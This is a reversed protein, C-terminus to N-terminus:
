LINDLIISDLVSVVLSYKDSDANKTLKFGGFLCCVLTFDITLDRPWSDLEYVIFVNVVTKPTFAAQDKQKLCSGKFKLKIMCNYGMLKPFHSKNATYPHKFKENSM